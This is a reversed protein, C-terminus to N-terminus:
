SISPPGRRSLSTHAVTRIVPDAGFVSYRYLLDQQLIVLQSARLWPTLPADKATKVLRLDQKGMRVLDHTHYAHGHHHVVDAIM